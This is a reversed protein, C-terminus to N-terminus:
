ATTAREAADIFADIEAIGPAYGATTDVRLVPIPLDLADYMGAAVDIRVEAPMVGDHHGPHRRGQRFRDSHRREREEHTTECQVLMARARAVLPRLMLESAGRHFNCDVVAGVGADLLYGITAYLLEYAAIGLEHSRARDPSGLTDFLIEKYADRALLPLRRERALRQALVTKGSAPAGSVLILLPRRPQAHPYPPHPPSSSRM